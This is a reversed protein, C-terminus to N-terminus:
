EWSKCPYLGERYWQSHPPMILHWIYHAGSWFKFPSQMIFAMIPWQSYWDNLTTFMVSCPLYVQHKVGFHWSLCCMHVRRTVQPGPRPIATRKTEASTATTDKVALSSHASRVWQGYDQLKSEPNHCWLRPSVSTCVNSFSQRGFQLMKDKWEPLFRM